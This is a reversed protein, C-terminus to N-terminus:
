GDVAVASAVILFPRRLLLWPACLPGGSLSVPKRYYWEFRLVGTGGESFLEPLLLRIRWSLLTMCKCCCLRSCARSHDDHLRTRCAAAIKAVKPHSQDPLFHCLGPETEISKPPGFRSTAYCTANRSGDGQVAVSAAAAATAATLAVQPKRSRLVAALGTAGFARSWM